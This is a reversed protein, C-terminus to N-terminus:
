SRETKSSWIWSQWVNRTPLRGPPRNSDYFEIRDDNYMTKASRVLPNLQRLEYPRLMSRRQKHRIAIWSGRCAQPRYPRLMSGDLPKSGLRSNTPRLMSGDLPKSGLRSNTPRLM